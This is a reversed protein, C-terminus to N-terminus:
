NESTAYYKTDQEVYLPTIQAGAPKALYPHTAPIAPVAAAKASRNQSSAKAM